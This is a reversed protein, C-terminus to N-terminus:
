SRALEMDHTGPQGRFQALRNDPNALRLKVLDDYDLYLDDLSINITNSKHKDNLGKVTANTCTSKSRGQLGTLGFIFPRKTPTTSQGKFHRDIYGALSNVIYEIKEQFVPM